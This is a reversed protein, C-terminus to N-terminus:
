PRCPGNTICDNTSIVEQGSPHSQRTSFCEATASLLLGCVLNKGHIVDQNESLKEQKPQFSKSINSIIMPLPFKLKVSLKKRNKFAEKCNNNFWITNHKRM